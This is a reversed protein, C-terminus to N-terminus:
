IYNFLLLIIKQTYYLFLKIVITLLFYKDNNTLITKRNYINDTQVYKEISISAISTVDASVTKSQAV